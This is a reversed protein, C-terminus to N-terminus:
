APPKEGSISIWRDNISLLRVVVPNLLFEPEPLNVGEPETTKRCLYIRDTLPLQKPQQATHPHESGAYVKLKGLMSRSLRNRPMMGKVALQIVREPTKQIMDDFSIAKMGGPYGSYRYYIKDTNKKGTVRVKEANVWLSIIGRILM